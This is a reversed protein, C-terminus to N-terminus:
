PEWAYLHRGLFQRFCQEPHIAEGLFREMNQSRRTAGIETAFSGLEVRNLFTQKERQPIYTGSNSFSMSFCVVQCRM